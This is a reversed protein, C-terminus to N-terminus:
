VKRSIKSGGAEGTGKEEGRERIEGRGGGEERMELREDRIKLSKDKM